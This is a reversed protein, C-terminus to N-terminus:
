STTGQRSASQGNSNTLTVSVISPTTARVWLVFRGTGAVRRIMWQTAVM